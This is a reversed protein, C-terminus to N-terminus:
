EENEEKDSELKYKKFKYRYDIGLISGSFTAMEGFATLVSNSINGVPVAHFGMFLLVVGAIVILAALVFQLTLKNKEKM